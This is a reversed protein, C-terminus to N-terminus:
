NAVRCDFPEAEVAADILRPLSGIEATM